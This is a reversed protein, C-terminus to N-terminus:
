EPEGTTYGDEEPDYVRLPDRIFIPVRYVKLVDILSEQGPELYFSKPYAKQARWGKDGRVYRGWGYVEGMFEGYKLAEKRSDVAYIGCACNQNPTEKCGHHCNAVLAEGPPWHVPYTPSLIPLSKGQTLSWSKWGVLCEMMNVEFATDPSPPTVPTQIPANVQAPSMLNSYMQISRAEVFKSYLNPRRLNVHVNYKQIMMMSFRKYASILQDVTGGPDMSIKWEEIYAPGAHITFYKGDASVDCQIAVESKRAMMDRLDRFLKNPDYKRGYFPFRDSFTDLYVQLADLGLQLPDPINAM